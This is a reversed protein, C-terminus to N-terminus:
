KTLYAHARVPFTGLGRIKPPVASFRIGSTPLAQLGTLHEVIPIGAALLISHVPRARGSTDDINVSDIGVLLAEQDRLYEAARATLHPHGDLYGPSGWNRDWGTNVLVAKGRCDLPAFHAWDIARSQMGLVRVVVAPVDSVRDLDLAAIDPGRAYRHFPTDLYTGTNAVMDLRGVHFETGPEYLRRSEERSLYDCIVPAPFGRLTTMGHEITHSLDIMRSAPGAAARLAADRKHREQIIRKNLIRVTGVMLLRMDGILHAALADDAIDDGDIDLRFGQGQIAGGNAFEIDFDFCVRHECGSDIETM